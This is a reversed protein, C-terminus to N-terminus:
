RSRPTRVLGPWRRLIPQGVLLCAFLAHSDMDDSTLFRLEDLQSQTLLHAEDYIVVVRRGREVREVQSCM